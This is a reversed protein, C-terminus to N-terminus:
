GGNEHAPAARSAANTSLSVTLAVIVSAGAARSTGAGGRAGGGAGGRSPSDILTRWWHIPGHAAHEPSLHVADFGSVTDATLAWTYRTAEAM